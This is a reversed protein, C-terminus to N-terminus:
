LPCPIVSTQAAVIYTLWVANFIEGLRLLVEIRGTFTSYAWGELIRKVNRRMKLTWQGSNTRELNSRFHRLLVLVPDGPAHNKVWKLWAPGVPDNAMVAWCALEILFLWTTVVAYIM